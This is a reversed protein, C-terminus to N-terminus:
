NKKNQLKLGVFSKAKIKYKLCQFRYKKILNPFNFDDTPPTSGWVEGGGSVAAMSPRRARTAPSPQQLRAVASVPCWWLAGSDRSCSRTMPSTTGQQPGLDNDGEDDDDDDDDDDVDAPVVLQPSDVVARAHRPGRHDHARRGRLVHGHRDVERPPVLQLEAHAAAAVAVGAGVELLAAHM